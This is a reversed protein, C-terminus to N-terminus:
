IGDKILSEKIRVVDSAIGIGRNADIIRAIEVSYLGVNLEATEASSMGWSAYAATEDGITEQGIIISEDSTKWTMIVRNASDKMLAEFEYGSFSPIYHEEAPTGSIEKQNIKFRIPEGQYIEM